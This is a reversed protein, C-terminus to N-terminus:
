AVFLILILGWHSDGVRKLTGIQNAGIGIELEDIVLM